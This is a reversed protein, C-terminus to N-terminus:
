QVTVAFQYSNSGDNQFEFVEVFHQGAKTATFAFSETGSSLNCSSCPLADVQLDADAPAVSDDPGFVRLDIDASATHSYTVGVSIRQGVALTVSYVDLDGNCIQLAPLTEPPSMPTPVTSITDSFDVDTRGDNNYSMLGDATGTWTDFRDDVCTGTPTGITVGLAYPLGATPVGFESVRVFVRVAANITGAVVDLTGALSVGSALTRYLGSTGRQELVEIDLDNATAHALSFRATRGAPVDLAFVDQNDDCITLGSLDYSGDAFFSADVVFPASTTNNAEAGDDLCRVPSPVITPTLTYDSSTAESGTVRIVYRGATVQSLQLRRNAGDASDTQLVTGTTSLLSMTLGTGTLRMDLSDGTELRLAFFDDNTPCRVGSVARGSIPPARGVADNPEFADDTCNADAATVSVTYTNASQEFGFIEVGYTGAGLSRTISEENGTGASANLVADASDKIRMDIDGTSTVHTFRTSISVTRTATLTFRYFDTDGACIRGAAITGDINLLRPATASDPELGGETCPDAAPEPTLTVAVTYSAETSTSSGKIEIRYNGVPLDSSTFSSTGEAVVGGGSDFVRARVNNGTLVVSLDDNANAAFRWQDVDAVCIQGNLTTGSAVALAQAPLDNPEADIQACVPPAASTSARLSYGVDGGTASVRVVIVGAAAGNILAPTSANGSALQGGASNQLVFTPTGSGEGAALSVTVDDGAAVTFSWLDVDTGCISGSRSANTMPLSLAAAITNNPETDLETCSPPPTVTLRLLYDAEIDTAGTVRLRYTGAAADTIGVNTGSTSLSTGAANLLTLTLAAGDVTINAAISGEGSFIFEDVDDSCIRGRHEAGSVIPAPTAGDNPETEDGDTCGALCTSSITDCRGSGCDDNALCEVCVRRDINCVATPVVCDADNDCGTEAVCSRTLADCAQGDGCDDDSRCDICAGNVTDCFGRGCDPDTFCGAIAVSCASSANCVQGPGCDTIDRCEICAGTVADCFEAGCSDATCAASCTGDVCSEGDPCPATASCAGGGPGVETPTCSASAVLLVIIAVSSLRLLRFSGVVMGPTNGVFALDGTPILPM